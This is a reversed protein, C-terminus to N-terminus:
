SATIYTKDIRINYTGSQPFLVQIEGSANMFCRVGQAVFDADILMWSSCAPLFGASVTAITTLQNGTIVCGNINAHLQAVRGTKQLFAENMSESISTNRTITGNEIGNVLEWVSWQSASPTLTNPNICMRRYVRGPAGGSAATEYFYQYIWQSSASAVNPTNGFVMMVGYDCDSPRNSLLPTITYTGAKIINNCDTYSTTSSGCLLKAAGNSTIPKMDGLIAENSVEVAGGDDDTTNLRQYLAKTATPLAEWEAMTGTFESPNIEENVSIVGQQDKLITWEDAEASGVPSTTNNSSDGAFLKKGEGLGFAINNTANYFGDGFQSDREGVKWIGGQVGQFLYLYGTYYQGVKIYVNKPNALKIVLYYTYDNTTHYNSIREGETFGYPTFLAMLSEETQSFDPYSTTYDTIEETRYFIDQVDTTPLTIVDEIVDTAGGSASPLEDTTGGGDYSKKEDLTLNDWEAKTGYFIKKFAPSVSIQGQQNEVITDNDIDVSGGGAGLENLEQSSEVGAYYKYTPFYASTCSIPSVSWAATSTEQSSSNTWSLEQTDVLYALTVIDGDAAKYDQSWGDRSLVLDPYVSLSLRTSSEETVTFFQSFYATAEEKSLQGAIPKIIQITKTIGSTVRIGYIKDEIGSTPLESVYEIPDEATGGGSTFERWKGTTPDVANTSKWQYTKGTGVCYALCGDYLVNDSMGAMESMTDYKLRGDLPKAGLYSLNDGINISM